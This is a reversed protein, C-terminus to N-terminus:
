RCLGAVGGSTTSDGIAVPSPPVKHKRMGEICVVEHLHLSGHWSMKLPAPKSSNLLAGKRLQRIITPLSILHNNRSPIFDRIYPVAFM